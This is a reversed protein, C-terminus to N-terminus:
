AAVAISHVCAAFRSRPVLEAVARADAMHDVDRLRALEATRLGLQSLRERQRACTDEQSMPIGSFVEVCPERLGIAWYGGDETGGLAADIGPSLLTEVARHLAEASVQPTDMGILLAPGGVDAFASALREALGDGRQALVAMGAPLWPGPRGALVLVPRIAPVSAVTALTDTLAAEALAAAQAPSCPPCLRTKVRGVVPEKALVIIAPTPDPAPAIL